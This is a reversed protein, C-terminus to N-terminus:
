TFINIFINCVKATVPHTLVRASIMTILDANM